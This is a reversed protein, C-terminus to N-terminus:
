ERRAAAGAPEDKVRFVFGGNDTFYLRGRSADLWKRWAAADAGHRQDTYRELVRVALDKREGKELLAVCAELIKPDHNAIALAKADEDIAIRKQKRAPRTESGNPEVTEEWVLWGENAKLAAKVKAADPGAELLKPVFMKRYRAAIDADEEGLLNAYVYAWQRASSTKTVVPKRGDFRKMYVVTNLFARKAGDTMEAPAACFGWLFWNGQRGLAVAGPGKSNVGGSIRECDPSDEFGYGDSVLGYNKEPLNDAHVRWGKMKAGLGESEPYRSYHKPTEIDEFAIDVKFPKQFIEHAADL